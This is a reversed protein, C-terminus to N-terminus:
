VTQPPVIFNVTVDACSDMVRWDMKGEVLIAKKLGIVALEPIYAGIDGILPSFQNPRRELVELVNVCDAWSKVVAVGSISVRGDPVGSRQHMPQKHIMRFETFTRKGLSLTVQPSHLVVDKAADTAHKMLATKLTMEDDISFSVVARGFPAWIGGEASINRVAVGTYTRTPLVLTGLGGSRTASNLVDFEYETGAIQMSIVIELTSKSVGDGEHQYAHRLTYMGNPWGATGKNNTFSFGM